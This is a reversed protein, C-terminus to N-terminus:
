NIIPEGCDIFNMSMQKMRSRGGKENRWNDQFYCKSDHSLYGNPSDHDCGGGGDDYAARRM